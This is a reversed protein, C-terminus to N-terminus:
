GTQNHQRGWVGCDFFAEGGIWGESQGLCKESIRDVEILGAGVAMGDYSLRAVIAPLRGYPCSM